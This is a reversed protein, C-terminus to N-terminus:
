FLWYFVNQSSSGKEYSVSCLCLRLGIVEHYSLCAYRGHPSDREICHVQTQDSEILYYTVSQM